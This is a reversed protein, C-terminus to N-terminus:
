NAPDFFRKKIRRYAWETFIEKLLDNIVFFVLVTAIIAAIRLLFTRDHLIHFDNYLLFITAFIFVWITLLYFFLIKFLLFFFRKRNFDKQERNFVCSFIITYFSYYNQVEIVLWDFESIEKRNRLSIYYFRTFHRIFFLNDELPIKQRINISRMFWHQYKWCIKRSKKDAKCNETDVLVSNVFFKLDFNQLFEFSKATNEM